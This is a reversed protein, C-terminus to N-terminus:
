ASRESVRKLLGVLGFTDVALIVLQSLGVWFLLPRAEVFQALWAALALALTLGFRVVIGLLLGNTQEHVPRRLYLIPPLTGGWGGVLGIAVGFFLGSIAEVGALRVTPVYGIAVLGVATLASIV